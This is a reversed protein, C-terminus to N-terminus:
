LSFGFCLEPIFMLSEGWYSDKGLGPWIKQMYLTHGFGPQILFYWTREGAPFELKWGLRYEIWLEFDAYTLGDVASVFENWAPFLALEAHLGRWFYRRYGLIATNAHAEGKIDGMDVWNQYCFGVIAEGQAGAQFAAQILYVRAALPFLLSLEMSAAPLAEEGGAADDAWAMPALACLMALAAALRSATFTRPAWLAYPKM